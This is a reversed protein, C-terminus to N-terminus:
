SGGQAVQAVPLQLIDTSSAALNVVNGRVSIGVRPADSGGFSREIGALYPHIVPIPSVVLRMLAWLSVEPIPRERRNPWTGVVEARSRYVSMAGM